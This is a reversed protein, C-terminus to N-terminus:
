HNKLLLNSFQFTKRAVALIIILVYKMCVNFSYMTWTLSTYEIVDRSLIPIHFPPKVFDSSLSNSLFSELEMTRYSILTSVLCTTLLNEHSNGPTPARKSAWTRASLGGSSCWLPPVLGLQARARRYLGLWARSPKPAERMSSSGALMELEIISM